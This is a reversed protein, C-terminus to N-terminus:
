DPPLNTVTEELEAFSPRVSPSLTKRGFEISVQPAYGMMHALLCNKICSLYESETKYILDLIRAFPAFFGYSLLVGMFTGCLAAGILHGLVEPPETISGMTHIVGLVAAVIGLAPMADSMTNIANAIIAEEHHHAEIEADIISEVEHANNTGLTLLRLYDCLFELTHHDHSFKPFKQFLPSEHPKEVHSELALDGKTKALKFLSYLLSLLELYSAKNHRSGKFMVGLAKGTGFITTKTNGIVYTGIAAGLIIIWEFPQVLVGLEGGNGVYGGIVSVVVIGIGIIVFM